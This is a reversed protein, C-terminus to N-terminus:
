PPLLAAAHLQTPVAAKPKTIILREAIPFLRRHLISIAAITAMTM